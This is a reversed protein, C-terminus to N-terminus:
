RQKAMVTMSKRLPFILFLLPPLFPFSGRIVSSYGSSPLCEAARTLVPDAYGPGRTLPSPPLTKRAYVENDGRWPWAAAPRYLCVSSSEEHRWENSSASLFFLFFYHFFACSSTVDRQRVVEGGEKM